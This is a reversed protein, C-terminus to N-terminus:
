KEEWYVAVNQLHEEYTKAFVHDGGECRPRRCVFFLYDTEAPQLVAMISDLGPSAIPGPPLGPYLYTNYLSDILAYEELKVPTKWWQGTDRQYGMAYQVTPDAQLFTQPSDPSLRNLYVSAIIPREESIATEREVISALTLVQYFTLGRQRALDSASAPLKRDMHDLMGRILDAPTAKDSLHYTGPFLYGEYSKGPPRDALLDHDVITGQRALRLFQNGDIIDAAILRTAVQEVRWGPPITVTRRASHGSYLAAGIERMTMNRRLQFDGARLRTDIGNYHLLQGFLQADNILGMTQLENAVSTGTDGVEITLPILSPDNSLPTNIEDARAELLASLARAESDTPPRGQLPGPEIIIRSTDNNLDHLYLGAFIVIVAVLGLFLLIANFIFRLLSVLKGM